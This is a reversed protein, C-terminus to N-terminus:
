HYDGFWVEEPGQPGWIFTVRFQDNVSLSWRGAQDGTLQHLRNGPPSKLQEVETAANLQALLRRARRVLDAPFGKPTKGEFVAKAEKTKWSQIM